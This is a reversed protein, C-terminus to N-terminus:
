VLLLPLDAAKSSDVVLSGRTEAAPRVVVRGTMAQVGLEAVLSDV